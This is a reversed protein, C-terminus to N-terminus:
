KWATNSARCLEYVAWKLKLPFRRDHLLEGCESFKVCWCRTRSTVAAECGGGVSVWDGIYTFESVTKM